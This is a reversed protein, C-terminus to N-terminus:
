AAGIGHAVASTRATAYPVVIAHKGAEGVARIGSPHLRAANPKRKLSRGVARPAASSRQKNVHVLM